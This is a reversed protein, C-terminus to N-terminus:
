QEPLRSPRSATRGARVSPYGNPRSTLSRSREMKKERKGNARLDAILAPHRHIPTVIPDSLHLPLEPAFESAVLGLQRLDLGRQFSETLKAAPDALSLELGAVPREKAGEDLFRHLRHSRPSPEDSAAVPHSARRAGHLEGDSQRAAARPRARRKSELQDGSAIGSTEAGDGTVRTKSVQRRADERGEGAGVCGDGRAGQARLESDAVLHEGVGQVLEDLESAETAM